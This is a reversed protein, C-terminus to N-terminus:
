DIAWNFGVSFVRGKKYVLAPYEQGKFTYVKKYESDLLNKVSGKFTVRNWIRQSFTFDLQGRAAEFVNPAGGKSVEALRKGFVNYLLSATTGTKYNGYSVDLNFIFPSQGQLERTTKPNPDYGQIIKLELSDIDVKSHALTLNAGVQFHQLLSGMRDLRKRLELELGYVDAEPVNRSSVGLEGTVKVREIAGIFRKYFGSISYLEGPREFWEWRLDCNHILTRKLDQYGVYVYDGVFDFNSYPALERFEPRALTRSYSGRLNM